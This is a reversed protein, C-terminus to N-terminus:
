DDSYRRGFRALCHWVQKLHQPPHVGLRAADGLVSPTLEDGLRRALDVIHHGRYEPDFDEPAARFGPHFEVPCGLRHASEEVESGAFCPDLVIAEVDAALSVGGHVHAEVSSDLDDVDAADALAILRPLAGPGGIGAPDRSSDPFCFTSRQTAEPRLRVYASGFRVAGGYPDRRHNWAGYVPRASAPADDYRGDFLRSEWRWRDGGVFATLGGNSTGTQFQVSLGRRRGDVHDGASGRLVLGPPVAANRPGRRHARAEDPRLPRASRCSTM